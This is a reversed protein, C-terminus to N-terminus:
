GTHVGNTICDNGGSFFACNPLDYGILRGACGASSAGGNTNKALPSDLYILPSTNPTVPPSGSAYVISNLKLTHAVNDLSLM